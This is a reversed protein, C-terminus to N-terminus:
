DIREVKGKVMTRRDYLYVDLHDLSPFNSFYLTSTELHEGSFRLSYPNLKWDLEVRYSGDSNPIVKGVVKNQEDLLEIVVDQIKTNGYLTIKGFAAPEDHHYFIAVDGLMREVKLTDESVKETKILEGQGYSYDMVVTSLAVGLVVARLDLNFSRKQPLNISTNLQNLTFRGCVKEDQKNEMYHVIAKDSMRSFDVVSKSCVDCFKGQIEASMADWDEHCPTAITYSVKKAKMSKTKSGNM